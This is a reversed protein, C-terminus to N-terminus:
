IIIISDKVHESKTNSLFLWYFEFSYFWISGKGLSPLVGALTSDTSYQNVKVDKVNINRYIKENM